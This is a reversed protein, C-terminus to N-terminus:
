AWAEDQADMAAHNDHMAPEPNMMSMAVFEDKKSEDWANFKDICGPCCFGVTDGKYVTRGGDAEVPENGIPCMTNVPKSTDVEAHGHDGHNGHSQALVPSSFLACCACVAILPIRNM